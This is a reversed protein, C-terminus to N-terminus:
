SGSVPVAVASDTTTGNGLEGNTNAGWCVLAGDSLLACTHVGAAVSVANTVSLASWAPGSSYGGTFGIGLQGRANDGWRTVLGSNLVACSNYGVADIAVVNSISMVAVPVASDTLSGNGLQGYGNYGWCNVAGDALLVCTHDTGVAIAAAGTIGPIVVPVSSLASPYDGLQGYINEGWCQVTGDSTLACAHGFSNAAIAVASTVEAVQVPVPSDVTTGNGLQGSFNSGWCRVTGDALPACAHNYGPSVAVANTIGTVTVPVPSDVTTGDGLQGWFNNSWCAVTGDTRVVCVHGPGSGLAIADTIGLVPVPVSSDATMGDGLQGHANAGWCRVAGSTLRACTHSGGSSVSAVTFPPCEADNSSDCGHACCGDGSDCHLIPVNACAVDCDAARGTM